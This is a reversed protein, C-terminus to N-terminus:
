QPPKSLCNVDKCVIAGCTLNFFDLMQGMFDLRSGCGGRNRKHDPVHVDEMITHVNKMDINVPSPSKTCRSRLSAKGSSSSRSSDEQFLSKNYVSRNMRPPSEPLILENSYDSISDSSAKTLIPPDSDNSDKLSPLGLKVHEYNLSLEPPTSLIPENAHIAIIDGNESVTWKHDMEHTKLPLPPSEFCQEALPSARTINRKPGTAQINSNHDPAIQISNDDGASLQVKSGQMEIKYYSPLHQNTMPTTTGRSETSEVQLPVSHDLKQRRKGVTSKTDTSESGAIASPPWAEAPFSLVFSEDDSAGKNMSQGSRSSGHRKRRFITCHSEGHSVQNSPEIGRCGRTVVAIPRFIDIKTKM